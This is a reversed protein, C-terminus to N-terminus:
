SALGPTIDNASYGLYSALKRAADALTAGPLAHGDPAMVWARSSGRLSRYTFNVSGEPVRLSGRSEAVDASVDRVPQPLHAPRRSLDIAKM